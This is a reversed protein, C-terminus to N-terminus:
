RKKNLNLQKLHKSIAIYNSPILSKKYLNLQKISKYRTLLSPNSVKKYKFLCAPHIVSVYANRVHMIYDYRLRTYVHGYPKSIEPLLKAVESLVTWDCERLIESLNPDVIFKKNNCVFGTIAHVRHISPNETTPVATATVVIVCFTPTYGNFTKFNDNNIDVIFKPSIPPKKDIWKKIRSTVSSFHSTVRVEYEDEFGLKDLIPLIEQVAHAGKAGKHIKVIASNGVFNLNELLKPSLGSKIKIARPGSVFCLYQDLFKYFFLPKITKFPCPADIGDDFFSKEDPSLNKYFEKLKAYLIKQGNESLLFGNLISFFWCTGRSQIAGEGCSM